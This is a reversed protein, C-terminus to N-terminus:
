ARPAFNRYFFIDWFRSLFKQHKQTEQTIFPRWRENLSQIEQIREQILSPLEGTEELPQIIPWLLESELQHAFTLSCSALVAFSFYIQQILM